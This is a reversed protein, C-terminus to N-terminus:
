EERWGRYALPTFGVLIALVDTAGVYYAPAMASKQIWAGILMPTLGGFIAYSMNYSFSLGSYRITPPFARTSIIPTMAIAGAFLGMLGYGGILMAPAIDHSLTSYFYFAVLILGGWSLFSAMRTGVRDEMYGWFICGSTITLTAVCNAELSLSRALGYRQAPTHEAIFVWAGPMQGGVAAGQLIRCCLPLLPALMGVQAYTPLIGIILTPLAMMFISLAFMKKRGLKDGFHAMIIGGLPSALYGAAFILVASSAARKPCKIAISSLTNGLPSPMTFSLMSAVSFDMERIPLSPM